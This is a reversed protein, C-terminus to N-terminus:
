RSHGHAGGPPPSAPQQPQTCDLTSPKVGAGLRHDSRAFVLNYSPRERTEYHAALKMRDALLARWM